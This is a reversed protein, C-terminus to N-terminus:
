KLCYAYRPLYCGNTYSLLAYPAFWKSFNFVVNAFFFYENCFLGGGIIVLM